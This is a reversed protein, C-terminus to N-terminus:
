SKAKTAIDSLADMFAATTISAGGVRSLSIEDLKVETVSAEIAEEFGGIYRSSVEDEYTNTTSVSTVTDDAITLQVVIRNTEGKPVTYDITATYSGDSYVNTTAVAQPASPVTDTSAESSTDTSAQQQTTSQAVQSNEENQEMLPRLVLIYLAVLAVASMVFAGVIKPTVSSHSKQM